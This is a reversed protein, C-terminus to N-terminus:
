DCATIRWLSAAGERDVLEFGDHGDLDTFGPLIYRGYDTSGPGFDFVYDAGIADVAPCVLPDTAVENLSSALV